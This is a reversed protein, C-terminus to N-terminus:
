KPSKGKSRRPKRPPSTESNGSAGPEGSGSSIKKEELREEYARHQSAAHVLFRVVAAHAPEAPAGFLDMWSPLARGEVPRFISAIAGRDLEVPALDDRRVMETEMLPIAAAYEEGAGQMRLARAVTALRETDARTIPVLRGTRIVSLVPAPAAGNACLADCDALLLTPQSSSAVLERRALTEASSALKKTMADVAKEQSKEDMKASALALRAIIPRIDGAREDLSAVSIGDLVGGWEQIRPVDLEIACETGAPLGTDSGEGVTWPWPLRVPRTTISRLAGKLGSHFDFSM